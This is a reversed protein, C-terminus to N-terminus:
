ETTRTEVAANLTVRAPIRLMRVAGSTRDSLSGGAPTTARPKLRGRNGGSRM